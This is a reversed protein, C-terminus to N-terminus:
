VEKDGVQDNYVYAEPLQKLLQAPQRTLGLRKTKLNQLAEQKETGYAYVYAVNIRQLVAPTLTIRRFTPTDYGIALADSDVAPSGPLIGAIHGDTGMGFQGIVVQAHQLMFGILTAYQQAVAEISLTQTAPQLVPIVSAGRAQFGAQLFQQMNSDPHGYPGFREDTLAVALRDLHEDPLKNMVQVTLPINSGGPVLWLVLKGNKLEAALRKCLADAAKSPDTNKIFQLKKKTAM